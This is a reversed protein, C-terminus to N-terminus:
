DYSTFLKQVTYFSVIRYTTPHILCHLLESVVLKRNAISLSQNALWVLLHADFMFEYDGILM